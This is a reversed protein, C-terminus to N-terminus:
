QIVNVWWWEDQYVRCLPDYIHILSWSLQVDATPKTSCQSSPAFKHRGWYPPFVDLRSCLVGAAQIPSNRQCDIFAPPSCACPHNCPRSVLSWLLTIALHHCPSTCISLICFDADGFMKWFSRCTADMQFLCYLWVILVVMFPNNVKLLLDLMIFSNSAM